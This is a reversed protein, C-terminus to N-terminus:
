FSIRVGTLYTHIRGSSRHSYMKVPSNSNLLQNRIGKNLYRYAVELNLNTNIKYGLGGGFQYALGRINKIYSKSCSNVIIKNYAYGVGGTIFASYKHYQFIDYYTNVFGAITKIKFNMLTNHFQKQGKIGDDIYLELDSRFSDSFKSGIGVAGTLFSGEGKSKLQDRHGDKSITIKNKPLTAWGLAVKAYYNNHTSNELTFGTTAYTILALTTILNKM